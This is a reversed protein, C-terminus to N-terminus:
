VPPYPSAKKPRSLCARELHVLTLPTRRISAGESRVLTHEKKVSDCNANPSWANSHSLSIESAVCKHLM